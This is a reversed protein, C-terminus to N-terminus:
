NFKYGWFKAVWGLLVWYVKSQYLQHSAVRSSDLLVEERNQLVRNGLFGLSEAPRLPQKGNLAPKCQGLDCGIFSGLEDLFRDPELMMQEYCVHLYNQARPKVLMSAAVNKAFWVMTPIFYIPRRGNEKRRKNHSGVYGRVDRTLHVVYIGLDPSELLGLVRSINKSSDVITGGELEAHLRSILRLNAEAYKARKKASFTFDFIRKEKLVSRNEAKLESREDDSLSNLLSTWFDRVFAPRQDGTEDFPNYLVLLDNLQSTGTCGDAKDLLLDLATSGNHGM